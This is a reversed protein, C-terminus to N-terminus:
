FRFKTPIFDVELELKKQASIFYFLQFTVTLNYHFQVVEEGILGILHILTTRLTIQTIIISIIITNRDQTIFKQTYVCSSSLYKPILHTNFRPSSKRTGIRRM